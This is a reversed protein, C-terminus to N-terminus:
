VPASVYGNVRVIHAIPVDLLGPVRGFMLMDGNRYCHPTWPVRLQHRIRKPDWRFQAADRGM